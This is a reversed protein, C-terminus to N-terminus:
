LVELLQSPKELLIKAGNDKLEKATRFGWLVGVAFMGTASATQMDTNTDGLYLFKEPPIQLQEAIKLAGAPDPKKPIKSSVGYVIEFSFDALLKNVMLQTFDDPKNSLITMPINKMQLECLLEPIGPYAATNAAWCRSYQQRTLSVCKKITENDRHNEPLARKAETEISDGVFYKYAEAPHTPFGLQDLAINMADALDTLTDLM